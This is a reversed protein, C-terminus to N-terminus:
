SEATEARGHKWYGRITAQARPFERETFLHRRIRQVAAAEGAVWVRAKIDVPASITADALATGPPSGANAPLWTTETGPGHPLEVRARADAIEVFVRTPMTAPLVALLQRIAPLASEDGGILYESANPDILYGRGPGSVAAEDGVEVREAWESAVGSGHRVVDLRLTTSDPAVLSPTFTRIAPKSDDPLLFENGRWTPIVLDETGPPPLLLRISAGPDTVTLDVLEAGTLSVRTLRPNIPEVASM